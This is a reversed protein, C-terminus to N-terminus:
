LIGLVVMILICSAILGYLHNHHMQRVEQYDSIAEFLAIQCEVNATVYSLPATLSYRVGAQAAVHIVHTFRHRKFADALFAENCLNEKYVVAGM